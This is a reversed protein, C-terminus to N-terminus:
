DSAQKENEDKPKEGTLLEHYYYAWWLHQDYVLQCVNKPVAHDSQLHDCNESAQKIIEQKTLKKM